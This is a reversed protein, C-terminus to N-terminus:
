TARVRAQRHVGPGHEARGPLGLLRRLAQTDRGGRRGAPRARVGHRHYRGPVPGRRHDGRHPGVPPRAGCGAGAGPGPARRGARMSAGIAAAMERVLGPDFSAGWALPTPFITASWAAFGTLCEEHAIAPIGLRSATSSRSSCGACALMGAAPPVPRTGFVRTLQGLGDQISSTSRRCSPAFEGQMPAVRRGDGAPRRGLRQRASGAKEELTM